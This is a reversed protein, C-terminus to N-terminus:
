KVRLKRIKGPHFCEPGRQEGKATCYVYYMQWYYTKGHQNLWYAKYDYTKAARRFRPEGSNRSSRDLTLQDVYADSGILGHGGTQRHRSVRVFVAFTSGHSAAPDDPPDALRGSFLPPRARGVTVGNSPTVASFPDQAEAPAAPSRQPTALLVLGVAVALGIALTRALPRSARESIATM